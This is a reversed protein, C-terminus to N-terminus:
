PAGDATESTPFSFPSDGTSVVVGIPWPFALLDFLVSPSFWTQLPLRFATRLGPLPSVKRGRRRHGLSSAYATYARRM